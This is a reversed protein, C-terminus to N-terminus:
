SFTSFRKTLLDFEKKASLLATEDKSQEALAITKSLESLRSKLYFTQIEEFVKKVEKSFLDSKDLSSLDILYANDITAQLESPLTAAFAKIMFKPQSWGLLSTFIKKVAPQSFWDPKIDRLHEKAEDYRQLCLALVYQELKEKRSSGVKEIAEVKKVLTSLEKKKAARTIESYISDEPVDLRTALKKIYHAQEVVNAIRAIVPVANESIRKKGVGDTADFKDFLSDLFFDYFSISNAVLERWKKPDTSALDHPDKGGEVRVVRITLDNEEAIVAARKAAEIGASDADLALIATKCLRKILLAQDATFASGKIAVVNKVGAQFSGIMDLEGEVIVVADKKKIFERNEYLGYLMKGKQYLTTEPSNIYKAEKTDPNLTRGSFGVVSGKHDKLPFTIRGRFRDYFGKPSRVILGLNDLEEVSYKKKKILFDSLNRWQEPAYGIAFRDISDKLIQRSELYDRAVKATPHNHLIWKFYEEGLHNIELLRKKKLDSASPTFREIKIGARKALVELAELFSMGEYKELFTFVDGGEGCGFCKFSQREPSVMFSPSKESHFPCLGKFHRGAKKLAVREGIIEVIDIKSKVEEATDM